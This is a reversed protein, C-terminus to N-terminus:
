FKILRYKYGLVVMILFVFFLIYNKFSQREGLSNNFDYFFFVLSHNDKHTLADEYKSLLWNVREVINTTKYFRSKEESKVLNLFYFSIPEINSVKLHGNPFSPIKGYLNELKQVVSYSANLLLEDNISKIRCLKNSIEQILDQSDIELDSIIDGSCLYIQSSNDDILANKYEKLLIRKLGMVEMEIGDQRKNISLIEVVCAVNEQVPNSTTNLFDQQTIVLIRDNISAVTLTKEFFINPTKFSRKLKPWVFIDKLYVIPINNRFNSSGVEENLIQVSKLREEYRDKNTSKILNEFIVNKAMTEKNQLIPRRCIPCNLKTDLFKVLCIKCFTHGCLTTVPEVLLDLCIQCEFEKEIIKEMTIYYIYKFFRSYKLLTYISIIM